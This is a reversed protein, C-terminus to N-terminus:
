ESAALAASIRAMLGAKSVAGRRTQPEWYILGRNGAESLLERLREIEDAASRLLDAEFDFLPYERDYPGNKAWERLQTPIDSM